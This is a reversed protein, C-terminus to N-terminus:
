SVNDLLEVVKKPSELVVYHSIGVNPRVIMVEHSNIYVEQGSPLHLAIFLWLHRFCPSEFRRHMKMCVVKGPHCLLGDRDHKRIPPSTSTDIQM